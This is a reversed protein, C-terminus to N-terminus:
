QCHPYITLICRDNGKRDPKQTVIQWDGSLYIISNQRKEFRKATKLLQELQNTAELVDSIGSRIMFQELLHGTIKLSSIDEKWQVAYRYAM